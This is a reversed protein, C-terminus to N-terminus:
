QPPKTPWLEELKKEVRELVAVNRELLEQPANYQEGVYLTPSCGATLLLMVVPVVYHPM